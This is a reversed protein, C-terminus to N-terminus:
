RAIASLMLNEEEPEISVFEFFITADDAGQTSDFAVYKAQEENFWCFNRQSGVKQPDFKYYGQEEIAPIYADLFREAQEVSDFPQYVGYHLGKFGLMEHYYRTHDRASIDGHIDTEPLGHEKLGKLVDEVSLSKENKFELRVLGEEQENFTYGFSTFENTSTCRGNNEGPMYAEVFGQAILKNKYNDLYTKAAEFDEYKLNFVMYFNYDFFYAWGETQSAATDAAKWETLADTPDLRIYGNQRVAQSIAELGDYQPNDHYLMGELQLGNDYNVYLQSYARYEDRLLHRWVKATTGDPLTGTEETFGKSRLLEKYDEVDQESWHPDILRIGRFEDYAKDDFIMAYSSTKPFPLAEDCYERMFVNEIMAVDTENWATRVPPYVPNKIWEDIRSDSAASGFQVTLDLDDYQIRAVQDDPIVATFHVSTPDMADMIMHVEEMRNLIKWAKSYSLGMENCAERVSGTEDTIKLLRYPGPGFFMEDGAISVQIKPHYNKEAM